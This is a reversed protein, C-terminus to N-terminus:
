LTIEYSFIVSFWYAQTLLLAVTSISDCLSDDMLYTRLLKWFFLMEVGRIRVRVNVYWPTQFTQKESSKAYASLPHGRIEILRMSFDMIPM